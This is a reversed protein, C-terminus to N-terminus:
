ANTPLINLRKKSGSGSSTKQKFYKIPIKCYRYQLVICYKVIFRPKLIRPFDLLTRMKGQPFFFFGAKNKNYKHCRFALLM